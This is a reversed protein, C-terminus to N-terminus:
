QLSQVQQSADKGLAILEQVTADSKLENARWSIWRVNGPEYGKTNDIRDLSPSDALRGIGEGIHWRLRLWPLVPCFEPVDPLDKLTLLFALGLKKSRQKAQTWVLREPYRKRYKKVRSYDYGPQLTKLKKLNVM